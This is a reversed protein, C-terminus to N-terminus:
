AGPQASLKGAAALRKLVEAAGGASTLRSTEEQQIGLKQAVAEAWKVFDTSVPSDWLKFAAPWPIYEPPAMKILELMEMFKIRRTTAGSDSVDPKFDYEGEDVKNKVGEITPMNVELWKPDGQKDLLRVMRPLSVFVQLNRDCYNFIERQCRQIQQFLYNLMTMGQEVRRAYLIGSEGSSQQFGQLNANIGAVWETSDKSELRLRDFNFVQPNPTEREPKQAGPQYWKIVGRKRELWDQVYAPPISNLPAIINPYALDLMMEILTMGLQNFQDQPDILNDVISTANPLDPDMDDCFIPKLAFGCDNVAYQQEILPADPALTPCITVIWMQKSPLERVDSGAYKGKVAEIYAQKKDNDYDREFISDPLREMERTYPSYVWRAKTHRVEHHEVVRYVGNALDMFNTGIEIGEKKAKAVSVWSTLLNMARQLVSRPEGSKGFEAELQKARAEIENARSATMNSCTGLIEEVTYFGTYQLFRWDTTDRRKGSPDWMVMRPDVRETIWKGHDGERFTYYNNLWGVKAIAADLAAHAVEYPADCNDMAWDNVLVTHMDAREEDGQRKPYARMTNKNQAIVGGLYTILPRILNVAQVPRRNRRLKERVKRDIQEGRVYKFDRVQDARFESFHRFLEVSLQTLTAVKSTEPVEM